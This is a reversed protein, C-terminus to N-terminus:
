AWKDTTAFTLSSSERSAPGEQLVGNNKSIEGVTKQEASDLVLSPLLSKIEDHLATPSVLSSRLLSTKNNQHLPTDPVLFCFMLLTLSKMQLM